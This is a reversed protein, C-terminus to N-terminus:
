LMHMDRGYEKRNQNGDIIGTIQGNTSYEYQQLIRQGSSPSHDAGDPRGNERRVEALQGDLGYMFGTRNGYADVCRCPKGPMAWYSIHSKMWACSRVSRTMLFSTSM